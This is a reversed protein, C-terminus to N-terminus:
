GEKTKPEVEAHIIDFISQLHDRICNGLDISMPIDSAAVFDDYYPSIRKQLGLMKDKFRDDKAGQVNQIGAELEQIRTNLAKITEEKKSLESEKEEIASQLNTVNNREAELELQVKSLNKSLYVNDSAVQNLQKRFDERTEEHAKQRAALTEEHAAVKQRESDVEKKKEEIAELLYPLYNNAFEEYLKDNIGCCFGLAKLREVVLPNAYSPVSAYNLMTRHLDIFEDAVSIIKEDLRQSRCSSITDLKLDVLLTKCYDNAIKEVKKDGAASSGEKLQSVKKRLGKVLLPIMFSKAPWEELRKKLLSLCLDCVGAPSVDLSMLESFYKVAQEKDSGSCDALFRTIEEFRAKKTPMKESSKAM